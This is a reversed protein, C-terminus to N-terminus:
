TQPEERRLERLAEVLRDVQSFSNYIHTSVRVVQHPGERWVPATIRYRHLLAERLKAEGFGSLRFTSISGTMELHTPSRLEAWDSEAMRRRLYGALQRGRQAIRELGIDTQFRVAEGTAVQEPLSVTGWQEIGWMYPKGNILPRGEGEKTTGSKSYGWSVVLPKMREQVEPAAHLFGVGKPSCLWKHCNGGYFDCGYARLDLPIMGPAHAGDVIILAGHAHALDALAKVPAILGTGTTVHSCLVLRTRDTIAAEFAKVVDQPGQPPIPISARRLAVGWRRSANHLCNDIAGYEQDSALIEDGERWDLGNVVANVAVTVNMLFALDEPCANVLGALRRRAQAVGELLGDRNATPNLEQERIAAILADYVPRALLGWSGTNLYIQDPDGMFLTRVAEWQSEEAATTPWDPATAPM